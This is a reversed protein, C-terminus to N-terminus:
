SRILCSLPLAGNAQIRQNIQTMNGFGGSLTQVQPNGLDDPMTITATSTAGVSRVFTATAETYGECQYNNQDHVTMVPGEATWTANVTLPFNLGYPPFGGTCAPPNPGAITTQVATSVLGSTVVDTTPIQFCGFGNFISVILDDESSASAPGGAPQTSSNGQVLSVQDFSFPPFGFFGNAFLGFFHFHGAPNPGSGIGTPGCGPDITGHAEVDSHNFNLATMTPPFATITSGGTPSATTLTLSTTATNTLSRNSGQVTYRACSYDSSGTSNALPGVGTWTANIGLTTTLPSSEPCTPTAPTVTTNLMAGGLRNDISFDSPHDLFLCTSTFTVTNNDFMFLSLQTGSTETAPAGDPRAVDTGSSVDLFVSINNASGSFDAGTFDFRYTGPPPLGGAGKQAAVSPAFNAGMVVVAAILLGTRWISKM